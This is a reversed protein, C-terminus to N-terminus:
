RAGGCIQRGSADLRPTTGGFLGGKVYQCGTGFDTYLLLGSRREPSDTDDRPTCSAAVLTLAIWVACVM